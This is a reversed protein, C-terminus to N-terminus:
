GDEGIVKESEWKKSHNVQNIVEKVKGVLEPKARKTWKIEKQVVPIYTVHLHYHYVDRGLRESVGKNREDAHMTAALIYKEDGVEAVAMKYAEAYFAKALAYGSTYGHSAYHEEFFDTNVDFIMEAAISSEPKTGTDNLKLGRTSIEGANHM